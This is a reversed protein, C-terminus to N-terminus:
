PRVGLQDRYHGGADQHGALVHRRRGLPTLEGSDHLGIAIETDTLGPIGGEIISGGGDQPVERVPSNNPAHFSTASAHRATHQTISPDFGIFRRM